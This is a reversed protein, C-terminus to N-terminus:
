SFILIKVKNFEIYGSIDTLIEAKLYKETEGCVVLIEDHKYGFCLLLNQM